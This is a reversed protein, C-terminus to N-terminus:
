FATEVKVNKDKSVERAVLNGPKRLLREVHLLRGLDTNAVSHPELRRM